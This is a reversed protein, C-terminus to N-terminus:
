AVFELEKPVNRQLWVKQLSVRELRDSEKLKGGVPTIAVPDTSTAAAKSFRYKQSPEDHNSVEFSEFVVAGPGATALGSIGAAFLVLLTARTPGMYRMVNM